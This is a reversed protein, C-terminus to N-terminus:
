RQKQQTSEAPALRLFDGLSFELPSFTNSFSVPVMTFAVVLPKDGCHETSHRDNPRSLTKMKNAQTRMMRQEKIKTWSQLGEAFDTFTPKQAVDVIKVRLRRIGGWFALFFAFCVSM